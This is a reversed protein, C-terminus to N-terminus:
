MKMISTSSTHRTTIELQARQCLRRRKRDKLVLALTGMSLGLIAAFTFNSLETALNLLKCNLPPTQKIQTFFLSIVWYWGIYLHYDHRRNSRAGHSPLVQHLSSMFYRSVGARSIGGSSLYVDVPDNELRNFFVRGSWRVPKREIFILLELLSITHNLWVTRSNRSFTSLKM